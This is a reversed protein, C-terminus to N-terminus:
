YVYNKNTKRPESPTKAPKTKSRAQFQRWLMVWGQSVVKFPNKHAEFGKVGFRVPEVEDAYTGLLRDWIIFIGAFNKDVYCANSGHHVRHHSPTNFVWELWGLKPTRTNHLFFPYSNALIFCSFLLLADFGLLIPILLPYWSYMHSLFSARINTSYDFYNSSHHVSHDLLFLYRTHALRHFVYFCFDGVLLHAIVWPISYDFKFLQFQEIWALVGMGARGDFLQYTGYIMLACVINTYADNFVWKRKFLTLLIIEAPIVVWAVHDIMQKAAQIFWLGEM